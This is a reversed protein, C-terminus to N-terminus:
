PRRSSPSRSSPPKDRARKVLHRVVLFGAGGVVLLSAVVVIVWPDVGLTGSAMGDFSASLTV